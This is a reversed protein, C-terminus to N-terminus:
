QAIELANEGCSRAILNYRKFEGLREVHVASVVADFGLSKEDTYVAFMGKHGVFVM